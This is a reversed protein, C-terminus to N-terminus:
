SLTLLHFFTCVKELAHQLAPILENQVDFTGGIKEGEGIKWWETFNFQLSDSQSATGTLLQSRNPAIYSGTVQIDLFSHFVVRISEPV